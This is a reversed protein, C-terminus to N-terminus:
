RVITSRWGKSAVIALEKIIQSYDPRKAVNVNEKPDKQHDYLERVHLQGTKRDRWETYRYRDTRMSYGMIGKGRPYQSFAAKRLELQPDDLLKAFSTGELHSPLPLDALKCLTPYIGLFEVLSSTKKGRTKMGPASMILPSRTATEFNTHKNWLGHDGLHWGHDGWLVVVTNDRLGLRDLENMLRGIQADIYSVCAYYGHILQRSLEDGIYGSKPVGVYQTRLESSNHMAIQPVGAPAFPNDALEIREPDYLDWYKKPAVFPLHPRIFGVGLFFPRDKIRQLTKIAYDAIEGDVLENDPVDLCEYPMGRRLNEPINRYPDPKGSSMAEKRIREVLARGAKTRVVYKYSEPYHSPESWSLADEHGGHYIKGIGVTHYGNNKFHQPLFVTEPLLNRVNRNTWINGTDPRCGSLLSGRSSMCIAQQCYAREFVLGQSALKDINPSIIQKRGYCGLEPRLDDVAIFLVNPKSDRAGYCKQPIALMPGLIGAAAGTTIMSLFERRNYHSM